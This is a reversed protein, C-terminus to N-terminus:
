INRGVTWGGDCVLVSGNLYTNLLCIEVLSVIHKTDGWYGVPIGNKIQEAKTPDAFYQQTMPTEIIGPAIANVRINNKGYQYALQKTLGILAFKSAVYAARDPEAQLGAVSAIHIINLPTKNILAKKILAQSIIFASNVNVNFVTQWEEITLQHPPTIERVGACHIFVDYDELLHSYQNVADTDNLDLLVKDIATIQHTQFHHVCALGIGSAAGTILIRM